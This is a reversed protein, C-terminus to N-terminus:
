HGSLRAIAPRTVAIVACFSSVGSGPVRGEYPELPNSFWVREIDGGKFLIRQRPCAVHVGLQARPLSRDHSCPAQSTTPSAFASRTIGMVKTFEGDAMNTM